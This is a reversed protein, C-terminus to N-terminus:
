ANVMSLISDVKSSVPVSIKTTDRLPNSETMALITDLANSKMDEGTGWLAGETRIQETTMLQKGETQRIGRFHDSYETFANLMNYATGKIEPFANHDNQSFLTAIEQVQDRKRTSDKWDDGFMQAMIKESSEKTMKRLALTNLKANLDDILGLFSNARKVVGDM